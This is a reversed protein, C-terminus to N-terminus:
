IIFLSFIIIIKVKPVFEFIYENYVLVIEGKLPTVILEKFLYIRSIIIKEMKKEKVNTWFIM